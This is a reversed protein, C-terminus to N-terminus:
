KQGVTDGVPVLTITANATATQGCCSGRSQLDVTISTVLRYKGPTPATLSRHGSEQIAQNIVGRGESTILKFEAGQQPMGSWDVSLATDGVQFDLTGSMQMHALASTDHGTLGVPVQGLCTVATRYHGGQAAASYEFRLGNMNFESVAARANAQSITRGSGPDCQSAEGGQGKVSVLKGLEGTVSQFRSLEGTDGSIAAVTQASRGLVAFSRAAQEDFTIGAYQFYAALSPKILTVPTAENSPSNPSTNVSRAVAFVRGSQLDIWPGGSEGRHSPVSTLYTTPSQLQGVGVPIPITLSSKGAQYGLLLVDHPGIRDVLRDALLVTPYGDQRIMLLALDVGPLATPAVYVDKGRSILSGHSDLYELEITRVVMGNDVLWDSNKSQETESSGVVHLATILFSVGQDSYVFFGSGEEHRNGGSPTQGDVVLKVIAQRLQNTLDQVRQAGGQAVVATEQAFAYALLIILLAIRPIRM